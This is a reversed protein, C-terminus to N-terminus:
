HSYIRIDFCAGGKPLNYATIIGNQMEMIANALSLGIGIGGGVARKGRYFRQFLHPFDEEEFGEGDDWILVQRYLPNQSYDCHISGGEKSHEMCNKMLNMLAQMTWELDGIFEVSGKEPILVTVNYQVSIDYLNEAALMLATFLDVPQQELKLVGADIQSLTLLSEELITLRDLHRQIQNIYSSANDQKLLQLSIGASTIPTKLQHAINAINEAFSERAKLATEKTHTLQTITKYIEDQLRSFDDEERQLLTGAKGTNIQELYNTLEQIRTRKENRLFFLLLGFIFTGMLIAIMAIAHVKKEIDASFHSARYGYQTLFDSEEIVPETRTRYKKLSSLVMEETNPYNEAMIQCLGSINQYLTQRYVKIVMISLIGFSIACIALAFILFARRSNRATM